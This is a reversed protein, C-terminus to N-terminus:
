VKKVTLTAMKKALEDTKKEDSSTMNEYDVWLLCLSSIANEYDGTEVFHALSILTNAIIQSDRISCTGM